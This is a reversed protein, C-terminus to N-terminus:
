LLRLILVIAVPLLGAAAGWAGAKIHLGHVAIKLKEIEMSMEREMDQIEDALGQEVQERNRREHSFSKDLTDSLRQLGTDLRKLESLVLRQWSPWGDSDEDAM